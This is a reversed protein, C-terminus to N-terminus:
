PRGGSIPAASSTLARLDCLIEEASQYREQPLRALLRLVIDSLAPPVEANREHPAVARGTLEGQAYQAEDEAAFPPSGTLMEYFTAGLSYYDTRYDV